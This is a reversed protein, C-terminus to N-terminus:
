KQPQTRKKKAAALNLPFTEAYSPRRITLSPGRVKGTLAIMDEDRTELVRVGWRAATAIHIADKPLLRHAWIL